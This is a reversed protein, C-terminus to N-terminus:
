VTKIASHRYNVSTIRERRVSPVANNALFKEVYSLGLKRPAYGEIEVFKPNAYKQDQAM